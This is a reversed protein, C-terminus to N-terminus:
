KNRLEQEIKDLWDLRDLCKNIEKDFNRGIKKSLLSVRYLAAKAEMRMLPIRKLLDKEQENM